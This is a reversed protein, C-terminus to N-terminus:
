RICHFSLQPTLKTENTRQEAPHTSKKHICCKEKWFFSPYNLRQIVFTESLVNTARGSKQREITVCCLTAIPFARAAHACLKVSHCSAVIAIMRRLWESQKNAGRMYITTRQACGTRPSDCLWRLAVGGSLNCCYCQQFFNQLLIKVFCSVKLSMIVNYMKRAAGMAQQYFVEM